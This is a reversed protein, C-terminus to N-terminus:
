TNVVLSVGGESDLEGSLAGPRLEPVGAVPRRSSGPPAATLSRRSTARGKGCVNPEFWSGDDITAVAAVGVGIVLAPLAVLVRRKREDLACGDRGAWRGSPSVMMGSRRSGDAVTARLILSRPSRGLAALWDWLERPLWLILPALGDGAADDAVRASVREKQNGFATRLSPPNLKLPWGYVHTLADAIQIV